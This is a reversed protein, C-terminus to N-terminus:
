RDRYQECVNVLDSVALSIGFGRAFSAEGPYFAINKLMCIVQLREQFQKFYAHPEDGFFKLYVVMNHM